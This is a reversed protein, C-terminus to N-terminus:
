EIMFKDTQRWDKGYFTILYMGKGLSPIAVPIFDRQGNVDRVVAQVGSGSTIVIREVPKDAFVSVVDGTVVTPFVRVPRIMKGGAFVAETYAFQGNATEVKLRYWRAVTDQIYHRFKYNSGPIVPNGAALYSKEDFSYEVTFSRADQDRLVRWSIDNYYGDRQVTLTINRSPQIADINAEARTQDKQNIVFQQAHITVSITMLLFFGAVGPFSAKVSRLIAKWM